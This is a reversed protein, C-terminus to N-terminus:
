RTAQLCRLFARATAAPVAIRASRNTWWTARPPGGVESVVAVAGLRLYRAYFGRASDHGAHAFFAEDKGDARDRLLRVAAAVDVADAPVDPASVVLANPAGSPLQRLKALLVGALSSAGPDRQLRTVEVNVPREARYTATFDPGGRGSGYGEYELSLRRDALLLAAVRLEARVGARADGTSAGRLKKRIKDRHAEVFSRFGPSASVWTLLEVALPDDDAGDFLDAVLRGVRTDRRAM